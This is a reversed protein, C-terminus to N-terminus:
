LLHLPIDHHIKGEGWIIKSGPDNALFGSNISARTSIFKQLLVKHQL